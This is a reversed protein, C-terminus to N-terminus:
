RWIEQEGAIRSRRRIEVRIAWDTTTWSGNFIKHSHRWFAKELVQTDQRRLGCNQPSIKIFHSFKGYRSEMRKWAIPHYTSSPHISKGQVYMSPDLLFPMIGGILCVGRIPFSPLSIILALFPFSVVLLTHLHLVPPPTFPQPLHLVQLLAVHNPAPTSHTTYLHPQYAYPEM